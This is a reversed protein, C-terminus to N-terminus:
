SSGVNFCYEKIDCNVQRSDFVARDLKGFVSRQNLEEEAKGLQRINGHLCEFSNVLKLWVKLPANRGHSCLLM